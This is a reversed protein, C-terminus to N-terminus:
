NGQLREVETDGIGNLRMAVRFVRTLAVGSKKGLAAVDAAAFVRHGAEDVIALAVLRTVFTMDGGVADAPTDTHGNGNAREKTANHTAVEFAWRDDGCITAVLVDGGWEPVPVRETRIDNAALIADRTLVPGAM